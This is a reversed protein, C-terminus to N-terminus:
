REIVRAPIGVATAGAPVDNLVVSLAGIRAGDGVKVGGLIQAYAGVDVNSGITPTPGEDTASGITVGQRLTCGPGIRAGANVFIGGFHHIRLGGGIETAKSFSIGTVTEVLRFAAWYARDLLWRSPSAPRRDNWRGFRYVAVAWISQERLFSRKPYRARDALWDSDSRVPTPAIDRRKVGAIPAAHANASTM